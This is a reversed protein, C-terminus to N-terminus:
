DAQSYVHPRYTFDRLVPATCYVTGLRRLSSNGVVLRYAKDQKSNLLALVEGQAVPRRINVTYAGVVTKATKSNRLTSTNIM